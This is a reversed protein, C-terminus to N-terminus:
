LFEEGVRAYAHYDDPRFFLGLERAASDPSDSGHVVNTTIALGHDGRITGPTAARPDTAGNIARVVAVASRGEVALAVVPGSTIHGVLSPYFPKERHEAYLQAAVEPTVRLLRLAAIRLGKREYRRVADGVLGRKVGDPKVLVLTREVTGEAM